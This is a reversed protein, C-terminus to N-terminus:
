GRVRRARAGASPASMRGLGARLEARARQIARSRDAAHPLARPDATIEVIAEVARHLNELMIETRELPDVMDLILSRLEAFRRGRERIRSRVEALRAAGRPTISYTKRGNVRQVKADGRRVLGTLIPYIAGAGPRWADRTVDGIRQALEGGYIPAQGMLYLAYTGALGGPWARHSPGSSAM